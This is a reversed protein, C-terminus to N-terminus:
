RKFVIIGAFAEFQVSHIGFRAQYKSPSFFRKKIHTKAYVGKVFSMKTINLYKYSM